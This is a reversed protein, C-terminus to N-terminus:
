RKSKAEVKDAPQVTLYPPAVAVDYFNARQNTVDLDGDRDIDYILEEIVYARDGDNAIPRWRRLLYIYCGNVGATCFHVPQNSGNRYQTADLVGGNVTWGLPTPFGAGAPNYGVQFGIQAADLVIFFDGTGAASRSVYFGSRWQQQANTATFQSGDVEMSMSTGASRAGASSRWEGAIGEGARGDQNILAYSAQDGDAFVVLLRGLADVTWTFTSGDQRQGIGGASFTFLDIGTFNSNRYPTDAVWAARTTGPLDAAVIPLIGQDDRIGTNTSTGSRSGGPLTPNDPYSYNVTSSIALTDRGNGDFLKSIEYRTATTLTRVQGPVGPVFEYSTGVIPANPIIIARGNDYSWTVSPNTNPASNVYSGTGDANLTVRHGQIYGNSVTGPKGLDYVLTYTGVLDNAITPVTLNPDVAIEAIAATFAAPDNANVTAIFGSMAAPDSILALTDTVGAPLAYGGDVVLKIAAAQQLLQGNDLGERATVLQMDTTIPAGGNALQLLYAQATSVNTVQVQNNEDRTLTGDAGAEAQLRDFDGVVSLFNVAPQAASGQAGMTVMGGTTGIVELNYSGNADAQTTFAHGDVSVNVTANAIPGDTVKGSLVLAQGVDVTVTGYANGLTGKAFYRFSDRGTFGPAPVYVAMGNVISATGNRAQRLLFMVRIGGIAGDNALVDVTVSRGVATVAVDNVAKAQLVPAPGPRAAQVPFTIGLALLSLAPLITKIHM